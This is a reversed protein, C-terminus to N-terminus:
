QPGPGVVWAHAKVPIRVLSGKTGLGASLGSLWVLWPQQKKQKNSSNNNNTNNGNEAELPQRGTNKPEYGETNM